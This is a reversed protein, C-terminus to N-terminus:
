SALSWTTAAFLMHLKDSYFSTEALERREKKPGAREGLIAVAKRAAAMADGSRRDTTQGIHGWYRQLRRVKRSKRVLREWRSVTTLARAERLRRAEWLEELHVQRTNWLNIDGGARRRHSCIMTGLSAQEGFSTRAADANIPKNSREPTGIHGDIARQKSLPDPGTAASM